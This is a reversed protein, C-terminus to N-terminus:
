ITTAHLSIGFSNKRHEQMLSKSTLQHSKINQKKKLRMDDTSFVWDPQLWPEVDNHCTCAIFQKDTRRIAKQMALSGIKAVNRDVVSTFEDFAFATHEELLSKALQVRMKEGNSLVYYPKLWSPPSSFGVSNFTKCIESMSANQPMDDVVATATFVPSPKVYESFVENLITSKGTGSAGVILGISWNDPLEISGKFRETIKKSQLDYKGIVSAVRFSDSPITEKVIDFDQM